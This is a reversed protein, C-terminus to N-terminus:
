ATEMGKKVKDVVDENALASLLEFGFDIALGAGIATILNHDCVVDGGVYNYSQQMTEVACSHCTVTAGEAIKNIALVTPAACIAGVLKGSEYYNKVVKGVEASEGLNKYGPYGGPLIIADGNEFDADSMATDAKICIGHSSQVEINNDISVTKVDIGGRRLIDIPAIAEIDEFGNALLVFAKM